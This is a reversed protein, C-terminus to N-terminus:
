KVCAGGGGGGRRKSINEFCLKPAFALDALLLYIRNLKARIIATSPAM